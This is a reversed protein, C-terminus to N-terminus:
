SQEQKNLIQNLLVKDEEDEYSYVKGKGLSRKMMGKLISKPGLDIYVDVGEGELYKITEHWRVTSVM